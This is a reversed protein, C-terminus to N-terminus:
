EEGNLLTIEGNILTLVAGNILWDKQKLFANHLSRTFSLFLSHVFFYSHIFSHIFSPLFSPLFTPPFPRVNDFRCDTPM